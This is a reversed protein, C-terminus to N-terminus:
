EDPILQATLAFVNGAITITAALNFSKYKISTTGKRITGKALQDADLNEVFTVEGNVDTSDNVLEVEGPDTEIFVRAGSIPLGTVADLVTVTTTVPNNITISPGTNTTITTNIKNIVVAGGSTNIVEDITSDTIEYTGAVTFTLSGTINHATLDDVASLEMDGTLNIGGSIERDSVLTWGTDMSFAPGPAATMPGQNTNYENINLPDAAWANQYDYINQDTKTATVVIEDTSGGTIVIVGVGGLALAAAENAAVVFTNATLQKEESYPQVATQSDAIFFFGYAAIRRTHSEVGTRDGAGFGGGTTPGTWTSEQFSELPIRVDDGSAFEDNTGGVLDVVTVTTTTNASIKGSSGDDDNYIILGILDSAVFIATANTFVTNSSAGTHTGSHEPVGSSNARGSFRVNTGGDELYIAAGEIPTSDTEAIVIEYRYAIDALDAAVAFLYVVTFPDGCDLFTVDSDGSIPTVIHGFGIRTFDFSDVITPIGLVQLANNTRFTVGTQDSTDVQDDHSIAAANYDTVLVDRLIYPPFNTITTATLRNVGGRISLASNEAEFRTFDGEFSVTANSKFQSSTIELVAGDLMKFDRSGGGLQEFVNVRLSAPQTDVNMGTAPTPGGDLTCTATGNVSSVLEGDVPKIGTKLAVLMDGTSGADTLERLRGTGTPWSVDEDLVFPGSTENDYDFTFSVERGVRVTGEDITFNNCFITVSETDIQWESTTTGGDGIVIDARLYYTADGLDVNNGIAAGDLDGSGSFDGADITLTDTSLNRSTYRHKTYVGSDREIFIWSATTFGSVINENLIVSTEASGTLATDLTFAEIRGETGANSGNVDTLTGALTVIADAIGSATIDLGTCELKGGVVSYSAM